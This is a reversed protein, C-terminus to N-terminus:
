DNMVEEVSNFKWDTYKRRAFAKKSAKRAAEKKAMNESFARIFMIQKGHPKLGPKSEIEVAWTREFASELDAKDVKAQSQDLEM